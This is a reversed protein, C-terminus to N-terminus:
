SISPLLPNIAVIIAGLLNAANYAIIFQPCNPLFVAVRDGKKVGMDQLSKAFSLTQTWLKQYTLKAGLYITANRNPFKRASNELFSYVPMEPYKISIPVGRPYARHAM